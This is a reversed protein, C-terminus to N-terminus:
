IQVILWGDPTRLAAYSDGSRLRFVTFLPQPPASPPHLNRRGSEGAQNQQILDAADFDAANVARFPTTTETWETLMIWQQPAPRKPKAIPAVRLKAAKHQASAAAPASSIVAKTQVLQAPPFGDGRLPVSQTRSHSSVTPVFAVQNAAAARPQTFAVLQPTRELECAGGLMFAVLTASALAARLRSMSREPGRLLRHVRRVLDPRREWAGLALSVGRRLMRYEALRTLCVAYAKPAGSSQLVRDDCALEREACLRREVWLLVPNLPLLVLALKQLLNTWDDARRLHEMEHLVVQRLELETLRLALDPPLLIRPRFFGFVSPREVESSTCLQVARGHSSTALLPALDASAQLPTARRALARLRVASVALQAARWLSLATWVAAIALSWRLDLDFRAATLHGLAAAQPHSLPQLFPLLHRAVLLLFVAMWVLSRWAASLRPMFRLCLAVAVALLAGQWIASILNSVAAASVLTTLHLLASM